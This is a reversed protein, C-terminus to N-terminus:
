SLGLEKELEDIRERQARQVHRREEGVSWRESPFCVLLGILPWILAAALGLCWAGFWQEGSPATRPLYCHQTYDYDGDSNRCYTWALHGALLRACVLGALGYAASTLVIGLASM